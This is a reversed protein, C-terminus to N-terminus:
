GGIIAQLEEDSIAQIKAIEDDTYAKANAEAADWANSKDELVKVRDTLAILDTALAYKNVGESKLAADIAAAVQDAVSSDGIKEKLAAIDNAMGAAGTTDNLIWDAIEKLTDYSEDAGAVIEAVKLAAQASAIKAVSGETTVDGNILTNIAKTNADVRPDNEAKYTDLAAKVSAASDSTGGNAADLTEQAKKNIYAIVNTQDKYGDPINGVYAELADVDNQAAKAAAANAAEAAKARDAEDNVKTIIADWLTSVGTQDLFKKIEAAM